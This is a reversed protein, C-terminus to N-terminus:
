DQGRKEKKEGIADEGRRKRIYPLVATEWLSKIIHNASPALSVILVATIPDVGSSAARVTIANEADVDALSTLDLGRASLEAKLEASGPNDLDQWFRAIEAQIQEVSLEGRAYFFEDAGSMRQGEFRINMVKLVEPEM